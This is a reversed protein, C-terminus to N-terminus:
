GIAFKRMRFGKLDFVFAHSFAYFKVFAACVVGGEAEKQHSDQTFNQEQEVIEISNQYSLSGEL